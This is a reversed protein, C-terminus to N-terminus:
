TRDAVTHGILDGSHARLVHDTRIATPGDAVDDSHGELPLTLEDLHDARVDRGVEGTPAQVWGDRDEPEDVGVGAARDAAAYQDLPTPGPPTRVGVLPHEAERRDRIIRGVEPRLVDDLAHPLRRADEVELDLGM